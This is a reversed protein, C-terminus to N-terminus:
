LRPMYLVLIRKQAYVIATNNDNNNNIIKEPEEATTIWFAFRMRRIIYYEPRVRGYKKWMIEYVARSEPFLQKVYLKHKSKRQLM